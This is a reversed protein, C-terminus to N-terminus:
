GPAVATGGVSGAKSVRGHSRSAFERSGSSLIAGALRWPGGQGRGAGRRVTAQKRWNGGQPKESSVGCAKKGLM